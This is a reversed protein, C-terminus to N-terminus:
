WPLATIGDRQPWRLSQCIPLRKLGPSTSGCPCYFSASLLRLELSLCVHVYVAARGRRHSHSHSVEYREAKTKGDTFHLRCSHKSLSNSLGSLLICAAHRTSHRAQQPSNSHGRYRYLHHCSVKLSPKTPGALSSIATNGNEKERRKPVKCNVFCM